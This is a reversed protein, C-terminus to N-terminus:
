GNGEGDLLWALAEAEKTFVGFPFGIDQSTRVGFDHPDVLEPKLLLAVKVRGRSQAAWDWLLFYQKVESPLPFGTMGVADVLLRSIGHERAYAISESVLRVAEPLSVDGVIRHRAYGDRVEFQEPPHTTGNV